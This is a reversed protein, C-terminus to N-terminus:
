AGCLDILDSVCQDYTADDSAYTEFLADLSQRQPRNAFALVAVFVVAVAAAAYPRADPMKEGRATKVLKQRARVVITKATNVPVGEERAIDEFTHGEIDKMVLMRRDREPLVKLFAALQDAIRAADHDTTPLEPLEDLPCVPLRRRRVHDLASNHAIRFIWTKFSSRFMFSPMKTYVKAMTEQVVDAAEDERLGMRIAVVRVYPVCARYVDEFAVKDGSQASRLTDFTLLEIV